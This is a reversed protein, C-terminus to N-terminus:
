IIRPNIHALSIGEQTAGLLTSPLLFSRQIGLIESIFDLSRDLGAHVAANIFYNNNSRLLAEELSIEERYQDAERVSWNLSNTLAPFKTSDLTGNNRLFCYIFPKLVSGVNTRSSLSHDFGSTSSMGVIKGKEIVVISIHCSSNSVLAQCRRQIGLDISTVVRARAFDISETISHVSNPRVVEIPYTEQEPLQLENKRHRNSSICGRTHLLNNLARYRKQLKVNDSLYMNPGRLLTILFLSEGTNLADPEKNFFHLAASRVGRLNKGFFVNELYM